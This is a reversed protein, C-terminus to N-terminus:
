VAEEEETEPTEEVPTEVEKEEDFMTNNEKGFARLTEGYEKVVRKVVKNIEGKNM